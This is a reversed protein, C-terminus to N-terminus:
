DKQKNHQMDDSHELNVKKRAYVHRHSDVPVDPQLNTQTTHEKSHNLKTSNQTHKILGKTKSNCAM